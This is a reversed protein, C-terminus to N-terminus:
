TKLRFPICVGPGGGGGGGGKEYYGGPHSLNRCGGVQSRERM